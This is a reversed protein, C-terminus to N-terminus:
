GESGAQLIRYVSRESVRLRAAIEAKHIGQAALAKVETTKARATPQRGRFKGEGKAKAIGIAQRQLMIEREFQAIAGVVNLFLRDMPCSTDISKGGGIDLIKLAVGKRELDRVIHDLDAVSRALRDLKTVIFVDGDRVYELAADLKAREHLSSVQEKFVKECGQAALVAVQDALGAEQRLTSTRAYGIVAM